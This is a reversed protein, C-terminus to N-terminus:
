GHSVWRCRARSEGLLDCAERMYGSVGTEEVIDRMPIKTYKDFAGDLGLGQDDECELAVNLIRKVGLDKLAKIEAQSTIEPGLYLFSPLITSVIFPAIANRATPLSATQPPESDRERDRDRDPWTATPSASDSMTPIPTQRTETSFLSSGVGAGDPQFTGRAPSKAPGAGSGASSYSGAIPSPVNLRLDPYQGTTNSRAPRDLNLSLKPPRGGTASLQPQATQISLAPVKRRLGPGSRLSPMSQKHPLPRDPDQDQNTHPVPPPAIDINFTPISSRLPASKPPPYAKDIEGISLRGATGADRDGGTQIGSQGTPGPQVTALVAEDRLVATWGGRLIKVREGRAAGSLVAKYVHVAEEDSSGLVVVHVEERRLMEEVVTRDSKPTIYSSIAQADLRSPTTPQQGGYRRYRKYLLSPIALHVSGPLHSALYAGLPRIDVVVHRGDHHAATARDSPLQIASLPVYDSEALPPFSHDSSATPSRDDTDTTAQSLPSDLPRERLNAQVDRRLLSLNNIEDSLNSKGSVHIDTRREGSTLMASVGDDHAGEPEDGSDGTTITIGSRATGLGDMELQASREEDQGVERALSNLILPRPRRKTKSGSSSASANSTASLPTAPASGPDGGVGAAAPTSTRPVDLLPSPTHKRASFPSPVRSSSSSAPNSRSAFDLPGPTNRSSSPGAGPSDSM